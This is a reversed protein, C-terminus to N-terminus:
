GGSLTVSGTLVNSSHGVDDEVTVSVKWSGKPDACSFTVPYTARGSSRSFESNWVASMDRTRSDGVHELIISVSFIDGQPDDYDFSVEFETACAVTSPSVGLSSLFPSQRRIMDSGKLWDCGPALAVVALSACGVLLRVGGRRIGVM